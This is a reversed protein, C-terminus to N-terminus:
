KMEDDKILDGEQDVHRLLTSLTVIDQELSMVLYSPMVIDSAEM